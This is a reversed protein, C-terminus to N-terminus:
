LLDERVMHIADKPCEQACVGCGRCDDYHIVFVDEREICQEPCFIWCNNCKICLDTDLIPRLNRSIKADKEASLGGPLCASLPRKKDWPHIM